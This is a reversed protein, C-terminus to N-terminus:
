RVVETELPFALCLTGDDLCIDMLGSFEGVEQGVFVLEIPVTTEAFLTEEFRYSTFDTLPIDAVAKYAPNSSSLNVSNLYSSNLDISHIIQSTTVLSMVQINIAFPENLQVREPADVQVDITIPENLTTGFFLRAIILLVATGALCIVLIGAGLKVTRSREM